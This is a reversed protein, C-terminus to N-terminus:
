LAEVHQRRLILCVLFWVSDPLTPATQSVLNGLGLRKGALSWQVSAM